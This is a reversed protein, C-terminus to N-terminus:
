FAICIGLAKMAQRLLSMEEERMDEIKFAGYGEAKNLAEKAQRIWESKSKWELIKEEAM